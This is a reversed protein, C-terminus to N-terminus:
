CCTSQICCDQTSPSSESPSAPDTMYREIEEETPYDTTKVIKGNFMTIPLIDNGQEQILRLIEPHKIFIQPHTSLNYRSAQFDSLTNLHNVLTSIKLLESQIGPGSVGTSCCMSPEFLNLTNM